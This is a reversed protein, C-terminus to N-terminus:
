FEAELVVPYHDSIYPAGYNKDCLVRFSKPEAGRYFIHDIVATANPKWGNFTARRDTQPATERADKMVAKIPEFIPDSTVCNFDATVFVPMGDPVIEAARKMMLALGERQAVKGVHDLHTNLYAFEKGSRKMRMKAWTCTRKCAADWGMSPTEPTESLWFTGCDLLEVEDKLYYITMYEGETKGDDRAIGYSAYQPLQEKLYELHPPLAEQLGFITPKEDNIMNISAQKRYEWNNEGDQGPNVGCRINYSIVKIPEKAQETSCSVAVCLALAFLVISFIKKM